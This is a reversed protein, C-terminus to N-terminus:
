VTDRAPANFARATGHVDFASQGFTTLVLPESLSLLLLPGACALVRSAKRRISGGQWSRSSPSDPDTRFRHCEIREHTRSKRLLVLSSRLLRHLGADRAM